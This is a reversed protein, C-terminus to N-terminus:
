NNSPAEIKRIVKKKFYKLMFFGVCSLDEVQTPKKFM